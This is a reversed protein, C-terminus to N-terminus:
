AYTLAELRSEILFMNIKDWDVSPRLGHDYGKLADVWLGVESGFETAPLVEMDRILAIEDPTLRVRIEGTDLVGKLQIMLRVIHRRHKQARKRHASDFVGDDNLRKSQAAAFGIYADRVKHTMFEGRLAILARGVATLEVYDDLWLVELMSPNGSACLKVAKTLEHVECDPDKSVRTLSRDNEAAAGNPRIWAREPPYVFVGRYDTDSEPTALGYARSGTIGLLVTTPEDIDELNLVM